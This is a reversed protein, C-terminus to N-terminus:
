VGLLRKIDNCMSKAKQSNPSEFAELVSDKMEDQFRFGENYLEMAKFARRAVVEARNPTFMWYNSLVRYEVGYSKPRFAGVEGYLSRRKAGARDEFLSPVGLAYDLHKVVEICDFFHSASSIPNWGIHIHGGATRFLAEGDPMDNMDGDKWANFDPNCGMELSAPNQQEAWKRTFAMVSSTTAVADLKLMLSRATTFVQDVRQAFEKPTRAPTINLEIALGDVQLAGNAVPMPEQKTGIIVGNAFALDANVPGGKTASSFFVEPDCGLTIDALKFM